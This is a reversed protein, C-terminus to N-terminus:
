CRLELEMPGVRSMHLGHPAAASVLDDIRRPIRPCELFVRVLRGKAAKNHHSISRGDADIVRVRIANPLPALAVYAASRLDIIPGESALAQALYPQWRRRLKGVGPLDANGSLRYAPIMDDPGLAGFLASAIVVTRSARTRARRPLTNAGLTDYLVGTYREIAPCTASTELSRNREIEEEQRLSIGLVTRAQEPDTALATLATVVERRIATLAPFALTSLDLPPGGGGTSKTESPPLLLRM